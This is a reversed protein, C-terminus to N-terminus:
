GVPNLLTYNHVIAAARKFMKFFTYQDADSLLSFTTTNSMEFWILVGTKKKWVCLCICMILLLTFATNLFPFAIIVSESGLLCFYIPFFLYGVEGKM